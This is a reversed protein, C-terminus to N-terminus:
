GGNKKLWSRMRNGCNMRQQGPNLRSYKDRLEQEDINMFAAAAAYVSDLDLGRLTEAVIDGADAIGKAQREAKAIVAKQTPQKAAFGKVTPAIELLDPHVAFRNATKATGEGDRTKTDSIYVHASYNWDKRGVEIFYREGRYFVPTGAPLDEPSFKKSKMAEPIPTPIFPEVTIAAQM